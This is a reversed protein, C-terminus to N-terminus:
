NGVQAGETNVSDTSGLSDCPQGNDQFLFTNHAYHHTNEVMKHIKTKLAGREHKKLKEPVLDRGGVPSCM